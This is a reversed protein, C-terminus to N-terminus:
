KKTIYLVNSYYIAYTSHPNITNDAPAEETYRLVLNLPFTSSIMKKKKSVAYAHRSIHTGGYMIIIKRWIQGSSLDSLDM